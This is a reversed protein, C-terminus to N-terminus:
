NNLINEIPKLFSKFNVPKRVYGIVGAAIAEDHCDDM